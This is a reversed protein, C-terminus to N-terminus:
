YGPVLKDLWNMRRSFSEYIIVWSVELHDELAPIAKKDLQTLLRINTSQEFDLLIVLETAM